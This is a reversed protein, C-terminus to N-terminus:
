WENKEKEQEPAWETLFRRGRRFQTPLFASQRERSFFIFRIATAATANAHCCLPPPSAAVATAAHRYCCQHCPPPPAAAPRRYRRYRPPPM